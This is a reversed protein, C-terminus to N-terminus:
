LEGEMSAGLVKFALTDFGEKTQGHLSFCKPCLDKAKSGQDAWPILEQAWGGVGQQDSLSLDLPLYFGRCTEQTSPFDTSLAM